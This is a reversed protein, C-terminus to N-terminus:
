VTDNRLVTCEKHPSFRVFRHLNSTTLDVNQFKGALFAFVGFNTFRKPGCYIDCLDTHHVLLMMEESQEKLEALKSDDDESTTFQSTKDNTSRYLANVTESM